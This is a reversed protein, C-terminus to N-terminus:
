YMIQIIPKDVLIPMNTSFHPYNRRKDMLIARKISLGSNHIRLKLLRRLAAASADALSESFTAAAIVGTM